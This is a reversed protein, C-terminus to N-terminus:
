CPDTMRNVLNRLCSYDSFWGDALSVSLEPPLWLDLTVNIPNLARYLTAREIKVRCSWLTVPIGVFGQYDRCTIGLFEFMRPAELPTGSKSAIMM